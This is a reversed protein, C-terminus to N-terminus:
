PVFIYLFDGDAYLPDPPSGPIVALEWRGSGAGGSEGAFGDYSTGGDATTLTILNAADEVVFLTPAPGGDTGDTDPWGVEAPWTTVVWPAGTGQILVVNLQGVSGSAPPNVITIEVDETLTVFWWTAVSFDLEVVPGSPNVVQLSQASPPTVGGSDPNTGGGDFDIGDPDDVGDAIAISQADTLALTEREFTPRVM